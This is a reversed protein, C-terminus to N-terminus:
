KSWAKLIVISKIPQGAQKAPTYTNSLLQKREDRSLAVRKPFYVAADQVVGAESVVVAICVPQGRAASLIGFPRFKLPLVISAPTELQSSLTYGPLQTTITALEKAEECFRDPNSAPKPDRAHAVSAAMLLGAILFRRM